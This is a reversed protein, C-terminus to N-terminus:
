VVRCHEDVEPPHGLSKVKRARGFCHTGREKANKEFSPLRFHRRWTPKIV